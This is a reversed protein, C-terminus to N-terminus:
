DEKRHNRLANVRISYAILVASLVTIILTVYSVLTLLSLNGVPMSWTYNDWVTYSIERWKAALDICPECLNIKSVRHNKLREQCGLLLGPMPLTVNVYGGSEQAYQYRQHVPITLTITSLSIVPGCATVNQQESKEAFLETNTEGTFCVTSMKQRRLEAIEDTNVYLTSPLEQYIAALCNDNLLNKFTVHYILTRHFGNGKVDLEVEAEVAASIHLYKVFLVFATIIRSLNLDCIHNIM